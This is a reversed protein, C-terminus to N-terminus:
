IEVIVITVNDKGGANLAADVLSKAKTEIDAPETLISSITAAPVEGHLGDTALILLNGAALALRGTDPRCDGCGVCQDLQNQAPHHRAEDANIEGEDLLFQAMNQDRTVQILAQNRMVSLRSDGVHAWYFVGNRVLGCTVTTGMGNLAADDEAADAIARDADNVWRALQRENEIADLPAGTLTNILIEAAYGGGAAGGMGDAVALLMSGDETERVVYRDENRERVVGRHTLAFTKM